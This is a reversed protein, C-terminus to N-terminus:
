LSDGSEKGSEEINAIDTDIQKLLPIFYRKIERKNVYYAFCGVALLVLMSPYRKLGIIFISLPLLLPLIYWYLVTSLLEMERSIYNRYQLLYLHLPASNDEKKMKRVGRLKHIIYICAPIVLLAGAKSIYNPAFWATLAFIPMVLIAVWIERMNRQKITKDFSILAKNMDLLLKAKNLKVLEAGSADKWLKKLENDLM